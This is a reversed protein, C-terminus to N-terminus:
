GRSQGTRQGTLLRVISVFFEDIVGKAKYDHLPGGAMVIVGDMWRGLAGDEEYSQFAFMDDGFRILRYKCDNVTWEIIVKM